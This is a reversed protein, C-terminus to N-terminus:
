RSSRSLLGVLLGVGLTIALTRTPNKRVEASIADLVSLSATKARESAASLTDLSAHTLDGAQAAAREMRQSARASLNAGLTSSGSTVLNSVSAALNGLEARLTEIQAALDSADGESSILNLKRAM